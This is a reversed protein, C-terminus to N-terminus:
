RSLDKKLLGYILSDHWQGSSWHDERLKGEFTFGLKECLKRKGADFAHFKDYLRNIGLEKFAYDIVIRVADLAYYDDIYLDDKGIYVPVEASRNVWNIYALGSVGVLEGNSLDVISFMLFNSAKSSISDFWARQNVESLERFERFYHRLEPRNRWELILPLDKLEIARLGVQKGRLM